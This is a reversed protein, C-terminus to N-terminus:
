GLYPVGLSTALLRAYNEGQDEVDVFARIAAGTNNLFRLEGVSQAAILDARYWVLNAYHDNYYCQTDMQGLVNALTGYDVFTNITDFGDERTFLVERVGGSFMETVGFTQAPIASTPIDSGAIRVATNVDREVYDVGDEFVAFKPAGLQCNSYIDTKFDPLLTYIPCRGALGAPQPPPWIVWQDTGVSEDTKYAILRYYLETTLGPDVVIGPLSTEGPLGQEWSGPIVDHIMDAMDKIATIDDSEAGATINGELYWLAININSLFVDLKTTGTIVNDGALVGDTGTDAAVVTADDTYDAAGGYHGDIADHNWFRVVPAHRGPMHFITGCRLAHAKLLMPARVAMARRWMGRIQSIRRPLYPQIRAFAINYMYLRDLNLLTSLNAVVYVYANLYNIVHTDDGLVLPLHRYKLAVKAQQRAMDYWNELIQEGAEMQTPIDLTFAGYDHYGRVDFAWVQFRALIDDANPTRARATLYRQGFPSEVLAPEEQTLM